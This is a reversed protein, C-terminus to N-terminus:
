TFVEYKQIISRLGEKGDSYRNLDVTDEDICQGEPFVPVLAEYFGSFWLLHTRPRFIIRPADRADPKVYDIFGPYESTM